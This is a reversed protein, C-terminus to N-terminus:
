GAVTVFLAFTLKRAFERFSVAERENIKPLLPDIRFQKTGNGRVQHEAVVEDREFQLIINQGNRRRVGALHLHAILQGEQQSLFKQNADSGGALETTRRTSVMIKVASSRRALSIWMSARSESTATLYRISPTNCCAMCGMALSHCEVTSERMLTNLSSSMASRRTGWSPRKRTFYLPRKISKRTEMM